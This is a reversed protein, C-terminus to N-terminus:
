KQGAKERCFDELKKSDIDTVGLRQYWSTYTDKCTDYYGDQYRHKGHLYSCGALAAFIAVLHLIEHSGGKKRNTASMNM